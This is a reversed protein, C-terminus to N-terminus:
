VKTGYKNVLDNYILHETYWEDNTGNRIGDYASDRLQPDYRSVIRSLIRYGRSWQGSHYDQCFVFLAFILSQKM